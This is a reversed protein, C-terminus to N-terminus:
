PGILRREYTDASLIIFFFPKNYLPQDSDHLSMTGWEELQISSKAPDLCCSLPPGDFYQFTAARNNYLAWESSLIYISFTLYTILLLSLICGVPTGVNFFLFYM